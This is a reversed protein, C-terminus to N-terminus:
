PYKLLCICMDGCMTLMFLYMIIVIRM